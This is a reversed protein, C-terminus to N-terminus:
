DNRKVYRSGAVIYQMRGDARPRAFAISGASTEGAGGGTKRVMMTFKTQSVPELRAVLDSGPKRDDYIEFKSRARIWLQADRESVVIESSSNEYIGAFMKPDIHLPKSGTGGAASARAAPSPVGLAAFWDKTLDSVVSMGAESNTLVVIASKKEPHFYVWALVGPGGGGHHFVGNGAIMWGLGLAGLDAFAPSQASVERMARASSATLIRQGNVGVGDNMHMRIFALLDAASMMLTAGAPAYGLALFAHSTRRLKGTVPDYNHGVSARYLLADEPLVASHELALPVLLREKVLDYWSKHRVSQALYGALVMGANSYSADQGPEHIQGLVAIRAAANAVTEEDHGLNALLNGDIGNTHNLLMRVTIRALASHEGPHLDPMFKLVPDDLGALGEDVLQMVLTTTLVKTISGVHMVTETTVPVGTDLNVVGAAAAFVAGDSLMAASAGPVNHAKISAGLRAELEASNKPLAALGPAAFGIALILALCMRGPTGPTAVSLYHQM